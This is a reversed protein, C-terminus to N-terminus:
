NYIPKGTADFATPHGQNKHTINKKPKKSGNAPTEPEVVPEDDDEDNTVTPDPAQTSPDPTEPNEVVVKLEGNVVSADEGGKVRKLADLVAPKNQYTKADVLGLEVAYAELDPRTQRSLEQENLESIQSM